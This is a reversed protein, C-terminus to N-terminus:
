ERDRDMAEVLRRLESVEVDSLKESEALYAVFPGVSGGLTKEVFDHVLGRMLDPKSVAPSYEFVTQGRSKSRTVFRKERLREMVTLITTRALGRPKGFEDAVARVTVPARDTVFRLVELEQDGLQPKEAERRGM